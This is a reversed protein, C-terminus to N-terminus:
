NLSDSFIGFFFQQLDSLVAQLLSDLDAPFLRSVTPITMARRARLKRGRAVHCHETLRVDIPEFGPPLFEDGADDGLADGAAERQAWWLLALEFFEVQLKPPFQLSYSARRPAANRLRHCAQKELSNRRYADASWFRIKRRLWQHLDFGGTT